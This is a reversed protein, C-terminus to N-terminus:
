APMRQRGAGVIAAAAADAVHENVEGRLGLVGCVASQCAGKSANPKLRLGALITPRPLTVLRDRPLGNALIAGVAYGTAYAAQAAGKRGRPGTYSSWDEVAAIDPTSTQMLHRGWALFEESEMVALTNVRFINGAVELLAVGTRKGPDVGLVVLAV